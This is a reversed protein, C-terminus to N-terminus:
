EESQTPQEVVTEEVIMDKKRPKLVAQVPADEASWGKSVFEAVDEPRVWRSRTGQKVEVRNTKDIM